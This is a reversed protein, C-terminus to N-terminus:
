AANDFFPGCRPPEVANDTGFAGSVTVVLIAIIRGGPVMKASHSPGLAASPVPLVRDSRASRERLLRRRSAPRDTGTPTFIGGGGKCDTVVRCVDAILRFSRSRRAAGSM